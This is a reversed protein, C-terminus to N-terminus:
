KLYKKVKWDPIITLTDYGYRKVKKVRSTPYHKKVFNFVCELYMKHFSLSCIFLKNCTFLFPVFNCTETLYFKAIGEQVGPWNPNYYDDIFIVGDKRVMKMALRFDNITHEVMHCGDVSFLSYKNKRQDVIEDPIRLSDATISEFDHVGYKKLNNEFIQLNGAGANDLNFEQMDFVDFATHKGEQQKTLALGIFFKGHYVGIEAIPGNINKEKQFQNIPEICNWLEPICWGGVSEIDNLYNNLDMYNKKRLQKWFSKIFNASGM